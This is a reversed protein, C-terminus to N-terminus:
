WTCDDESGIIGGFLLLGSAVAPCVQKHVETAPFDPWNGPWTTATEWCTFMWHRTMDPWQLKSWNKLSLSTWQLHQLCCVRVFGIMNMGKTTYHWTDLTCVTHEASKARRPYFRVSLVDWPEIDIAAVAPSCVDLLGCAWVHNWDAVMWSHCGWRNSPRSIYQTLSGAVGYGWFLNTKQLSFDNPLILEKVYEVRRWREITTRCGRRILWCFVRIDLDWHASGSRLRPQPGATLAWTLSFTLISALYIGFM